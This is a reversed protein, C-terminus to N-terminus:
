TYNSGNKYSAMTVIVASGSCVNKYYVGGEEEVM